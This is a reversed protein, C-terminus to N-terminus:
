LLASQNRLFLDNGMVPLKIITAALDLILVHLIRRLFLQLTSDLTSYQAVARLHFQAFHHSFFISNLFSLSEVSDTLGLMDRIRSMIFYESIFVLTCLPYPSYHLALVLATTLLESLAAVEEIVESDMGM